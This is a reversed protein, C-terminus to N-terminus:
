VSGAQSDAPLALEDLRARILAESRGLWAAAESTSTTTLREVQRDHETAVEFMRSLGFYVAKDAIVATRRKHDQMGLRKVDRTHELIEEATLNTALARVDIVSDFTVVDPHAAIVGALVNRWEPVSAQGEYRLVLLREASDVKVKIM